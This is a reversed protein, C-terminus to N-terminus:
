LHSSIDQRMDELLLTSLLVECQGQLLIAHARGVSFGTLPVPKEVAVEVEDHLGM